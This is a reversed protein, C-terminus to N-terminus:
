MRLQWRKLCAFIEYPSIFYYFLLRIIRAIRCLEGYLCVVGLLFLLFFCSLIIIIYFFLLFCLISVFIYLSSVLCCECLSINLTLPCRKYTQVHPKIHHDFVINGLVKRHVTMWNITNWICMCWVCVDIVQPFVQYLALLLSFFCIKMKLIKPIWTGWICVRIFALKYDTM